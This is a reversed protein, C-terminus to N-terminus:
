SLPHGQETGRRIEINPSLLSNIKIKAVSKNYMDTLVNFFNGTINLMSIKYLLLDRSVTDFAKRLDVFCAYVKKRQKKTYKDLITKLTLVHDNIQAGKTFGLQEVPDPCHLKKFFLLRDLLISSFLKGMCSGVAIARYNDPCFPNGSKFIPTIVSTHWPYKGTLLCHNFMKTLACTAQLRLHQFM